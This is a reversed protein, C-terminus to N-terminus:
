APRSALEPVRRIEVSLTVSSIDCYIFEWIAGDEGRKRERMVLRNTQQHEIDPLHYIMDLGIEDDAASDIAYRRSRIRTTTFQSPPAAIRARSTTMGFSCHIMLAKLSEGEGSASRSTM